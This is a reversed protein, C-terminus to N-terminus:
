WVLEGLTKLKEKSYLKMVANSVLEWARDPNYSPHSKMFENRGTDCRTWVETKEDDTLDDWDVVVM